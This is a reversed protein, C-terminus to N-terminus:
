RSDTPLARRIFGFLGHSEDAIGATFYLVAANHDFGHFGMGGKDGMGHQPGPSTAPAFALGWLGNIVIPDGQPFSLTGMAAGTSPDFANITGDGFNGVLLAGGFKGFGRPAVVLGWPSNLAGNAILQKARTGDPNFIDVFGNGPGAQDDHKDPLQLAFTVYLQGGIERIGFPAYGAPLTNDTFSGVFAFHADYMEVANDHFNAVYLFNSGGNQALAIGKYVAGSGSNDVKLIANATDVAPNWGAVTGDETAFLFAAPGSTGNGSVVFDATPNFATGTPTAIAGPPSGAPPPITVVLSQPVGQLNYITSVGTGNDSVWIKGTPTIAIGWANVLNTDTLRAVGAIDSVLNVRTFGGGGHPQAIAVNSMGAATALSILIASLMTTRNQLRKM